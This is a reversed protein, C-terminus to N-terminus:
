PFIPGIVHNLFGDDVVAVRDRYVYVLISFGVPLLLFTEDHRRTMLDNRADLWTEPLAQMLDSFDMRDGSRRLRERAQQISEEKLLVSKQKM